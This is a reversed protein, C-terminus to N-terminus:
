FLVLMIALVVIADVNQEVGSKTHRLEASQGERVDIELVLSDPYVMLQLAGPIHLVDDLIGLGLTALPEDRHAVLNHRTEASHHVIPFLRGFLRHDVSVGTEQKQVFVIHRHDAKVPFMVKLMDAVLVVADVSYLKRFNCRMHAPMSEAGVHCLASHVRFGQLVNHSM